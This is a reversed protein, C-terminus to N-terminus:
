VLHRGPSVVGHLSWGGAAGLCLLLVAAMARWWGVTTRRRMEVMRALNLEPPVPEEAIPRLAARLDARQRVYGQVRVAVDPHADLYVDIETRRTPDLAADVYAHLDDETIPRRDMM